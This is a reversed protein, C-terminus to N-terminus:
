DGAISPFLFLGLPDAGSTIVSGAYLVSALRVALPRIFDTYDKMVCPALVPFGQTLALGLTNDRGDLDM